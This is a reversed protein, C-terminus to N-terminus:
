RFGPVVFVGDESFLMAGHEGKKIIIFKPGLKRIAHGARILNHDETLLLAESDNLVIDLMDAEDGRCENITLSILRPALKSSLNKGDLTVVGSVRGTSGGCGVVALAVALAAPWTRIQRM